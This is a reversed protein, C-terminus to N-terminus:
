RLDAPTVAVKALRKFARCVSKIEDDSFGREVISLRRFDVGSEAGLDRLSIRASKRIAQLAHPTSFVPTKPAM